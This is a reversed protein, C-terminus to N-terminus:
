SATMPTGPGSRLWPHPQSYFLSGPNQNGGTGVITKPLEWRWLRIFNHNNTQLLDLYADYDFVPPPDTSIPKEPMVVLACDQLNAWTHSGTLYVARLRGDPTRTGDTFYRPNTPHVRLPGKAQDRAPQQGM